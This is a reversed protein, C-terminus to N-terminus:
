AWSGASDLATATLHTALPLVGFVKRTEMLLLPRIKHAACFDILGYCINADDCALVGRSSMRPLVTELEYSMWQYSHDSDHVMLDVAPLRAVIASFSKKLNSSDVLHLHWRSRDVVLSGVNESVDVSHLEGSANEGLANLILASSHGNAVGTELIISPRLLRVLAYMVFASGEEIAFAADYGLAVTRYRQMLGARYTEYECRLNVLDDSLSPSAFLASILGDVGLHVSSASAALESLSPIDRKRFGSSLLAHTSKCLLRELTDRLGYERLYSFLRSSM